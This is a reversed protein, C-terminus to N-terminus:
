GCAWWRLDIRSNSNIVDILDTYIKQEAQSLDNLYAAPRDNLAAGASPADAAPLYFEGDVNSGDASTTDSTMMSKYAEAKQQFFGPAYGTGLVSSSIAAEYAAQGTLFRKNGGDVGEYQANPFSFQKNDEIKTSSTAAYDSAFALQGDLTSTTLRNYATM